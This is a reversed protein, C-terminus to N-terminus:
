PGVCLIMHFEPSEADVLSMEPNGSDALCGANALCTLIM